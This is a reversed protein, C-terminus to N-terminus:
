CAGDRRRGVAWVLTGFGAHAKCEMRYRQARARHTVSAFETQKGATAGWGFRGRSPGDTEIELLKKLDTPEDVGSTQLGVSVFRGPAAVNIQDRKM